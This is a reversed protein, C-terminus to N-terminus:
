EIDATDSEFAESLRQAIMMFQDETKIGFDALINTNIQDFTLEGSELNAM